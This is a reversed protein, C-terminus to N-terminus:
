ANMNIFSRILAYVWVFWVADFFAYHYTRTDVMYTESEYFLSFNPIFRLTRRVYETFEQGYKAALRQEEDVVALPYYILFGLILFSRAHCAWNLM